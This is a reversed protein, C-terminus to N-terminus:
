SFPLSLSANGAIASKGGPLGIPARHDIPTGAHLATAARTTTAAFDAACRFFAFYAAFEELEDHGDVFVLADVLSRKRRPRFHELDDLIKAIAFHSGFSVVDVVGASRFNEFWNSRSRALDRSAIM